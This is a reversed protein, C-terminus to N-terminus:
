AALKGYALPGCFWQGKQSLVGYQLTWTSFLLASARRRNVFPWLIRVTAVFIVAEFGIRQVGGSDFVCNCMNAASFYMAAAM